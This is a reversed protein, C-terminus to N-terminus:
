VHRLADVINMRSARTAPLLASLSAVAILGLASGLMMMHEGAVQAALPSPEVGGPPMWTLGMFNIVWALAVAASLGVVSGIAGLVMAETLFLKRIGARRLGLARVTGIEVTREVVTMSMTNSITFLVVAGILASIFGFIAAFMGLTQGYFPNLTEYDIIELPNDKFTTELIQQLRERAAPVQRTHHLQLAIATARPASQGFVLKQAQALHMTVHVDDLEKIGQFEARVVNVAAVNPAGRAGAALIEIRPVGSAAAAPGAPKAAPASLGAIDDPLDAGKAAAPPPASDSPPAAVCNPVELAGCLQLVRAVGTGIVASDPGSGSLALRSPVLRLRYDNWERMLNQGQVEYGSVFVTRSVGAAFNGAIGGFNLVPTGVILMPALVPDARVTKLIREYDAIGYAAPDGSGYLFYGKRQIQLHGSRQVYGSQLQYTIDRVFGGFLLVAVMGLVMALLTMLSRRRNRMLNRLALSFTNM